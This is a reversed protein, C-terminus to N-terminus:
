MVSGLRDRQKVALLKDKREMAEICQVVSYLMISGVRDRQKV